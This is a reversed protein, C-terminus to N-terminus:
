AAQAMPLAVAVAERGEALLVRGLKERGLRPAFEGNRWAARGAIYSATVVGESRNVMQHHQFAERWIFHTNAESNYRRLAEPDVVIVDAPLGAALRGARVGFLEAPERTLRRVHWGVKALGHRQAMQLGRLNGDYFAMNTLHAGSDNFGPLVEPDFLLKETLAPDRNATLTSTRLATDYERYLHLVFDVEDAGKPVREFHEREEQSRAGEGTTQWRLARAHVAALTEGKWQPPVPGSDVTIDGTRRSFAYQERKLLRMLNPLNFGSRGMLWMARFRQQFAADNLLALRAARDELDPENLERLEPIEESLPNIPGDWWVRFPAALAQFRFHGGMFRSNLVRTLFM